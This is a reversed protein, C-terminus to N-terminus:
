LTMSIAPWRYAIGKWGVELAWRAMMLWLPCNEPQQVLVVFKISEVVYVCACLCECLIKSTKQFRINASAERLSM